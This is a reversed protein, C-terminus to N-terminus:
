ATRPRYEESTEHRDDIMAAALDRGVMRNVIMGADVGAMTAFTEIHKGDRLITCADCLSTIEDMRHSVYLIALGRSRLEAILSFLTAVERASLSSTPEDFAIVKADRTLAKAIEM